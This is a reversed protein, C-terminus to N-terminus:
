PIEYQFWVLLNKKKFLFGLCLHFRHLIYILIYTLILIWPKLPSFATRFFVVCFRDESRASCSHLRLKGDQFGCGCSMLEMAALLLLTLDFSPMPNKKEKEPIVGSNMLLSAIAATVQWYLLWGSDVEIHLSHPFASHLRVPSQHWGATNKVRVWRLFREYFRNM